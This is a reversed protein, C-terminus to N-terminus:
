IVTIGWLLSHPMWRLTKRVRHTYIVIIHLLDAAPYLLLELVLFLNVSLHDILWFTHNRPQAKYTYFPLCVPFAALDFYEEFYHHFVSEIM